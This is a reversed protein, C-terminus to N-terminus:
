PGTNNANNDVNANNDFVGFNWNLNFADPIIEDIHQDIWLNIEAINSKPVFIIDGAQLQLAGKGLGAEIFERMNIKYVIAPSAGKPRIIAIEKSRATDLLGGSAIIAQIPNLGSSIPVSGPSAVEGGVYIVGKYDAVTINTRANAVIGENMLARDISAEAEDLTLGALNVRGLLPVSFRGDPGIPGEIDLEPNLPFQLAIEDGPTLRYAAKSVTLDQALTVTHFTSPIVLCFVTAIFPVLFARRMKINHIYFTM